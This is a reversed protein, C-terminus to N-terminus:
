CAYISSRQILPAQVCCLLLIGSQMQRSSQDLLFYIYKQHLQVYAHTVRDVVVVMEILYMCLCLLTVSLYVYHQNTVYDNCEGTPTSRAELPLLVHSFPSELSTSSSLRMILSQSPSLLSSFLTFFSILAVLLLRYRYPQGM